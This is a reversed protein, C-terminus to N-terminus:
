RMARACHTGPLAYALAVDGRGAAADRTSMSEIKSSVADV